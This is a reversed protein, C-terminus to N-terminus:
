PRTECFPATECPTTASVAPRDLYGNYKFAITRHVHPRVADIQKRIRGDSARPRQAGDVCQCGAAYQECCFVEVVAWLKKRGLKRKAEDYYRVVAQLNDPNVRREGVGDQLLIRRFRAKNQITRLRKVFDAPPQFDPHPNFYASVLVPRTPKLSRCADAIAALFDAATGDEGSTSNGIEHAVYWGMFRKREAFEENVATAVARNAEVLGDLATQDKKKWADNWSENYYVGVYLDVFKERSALADSEDFVKRLDRLLPTPGSARTYQIVVTRLGKAQMATLTGPKYDDLILFAGDLPLEEARASLALLMVALVIKRM